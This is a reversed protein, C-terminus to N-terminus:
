FYKEILYYEKLYNMFRNTKLITSMVQKETNKDATKAILDTNEFRQIKNPKTNKFQALYFPFAENKQNFTHQIRLNETKDNRLRIADILIGEMVERYLNRSFKLDYTFDIPLSFWYDLVDKDLLPYTYRYGHKAGFYTWSDMRNPIHYNYLLNLIFQNRGKKGYISKDIKEHIYKKHKLIFDANLYRLNASMEKWGRRKYFPNLQSLSDTYISSLVNKISRFYMLRILSFWRFTFFLHTSVGRNSLSLFEDGGWGSFMLKVGHEEALHMTPQEIPMHEFEPNVERKRFDENTENVYYIPIGSEKSFANIFEKENGGKIGLNLDAKNLQAPTWSYGKLEQKQNLQAVISAVGTCDLGGSVHLGMTEDIMRNKVATLLLKKLHSVAEKRTISRNRKIKEPKWYNHKEISCNELVYHYGPTVKSIENFYTHEYISKLDLRRHILYRENYTYKVLKSKAIGFTHTSFIFTQNNFFYSLSSAGIHDRFFDVKKTKKHIIVVSFEGSIKDASEKGWKLYASLFCSADTTYEILKSLADHNFIRGEYILIYEETELVSEQFSDQKLWSTGLYIGDKQYVTKSQFNEWSVANGLHDIDSITRQKSDLDIIGYIFAM